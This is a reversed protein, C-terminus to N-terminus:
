CSTAPDDKRGSYLKGKIERYLKGHILEVRDGLCTSSPVTLPEIPIFFITRERLVAHGGNM